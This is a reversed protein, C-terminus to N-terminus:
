LPCRPRCSPTKWVATPYVTFYLQLSCWPVFYTNMLCMPPTLWISYSYLILTDCRTHGCPGVDVVCNYYSLCQGTRELLCPSYVSFKIWLFGIHLHSWHLGIGPTTRYSTSLSSTAIGPHLTTSSTIETVCGGCGRGGDRGDDHRDQSFVELGWLNCCVGGAIPYM